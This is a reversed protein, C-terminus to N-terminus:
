ESRQPDNDPDPGPVQQPPLGNQRCYLYVRHRNNKGTSEAIGQGRVSGYAEEKPVAPQKSYFPDPRSYWQGAIDGYGWFSVLAKPRPEVRFGASLTLYGGASGGMVLM